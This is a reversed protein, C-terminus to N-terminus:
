GYYVSVLYTGEDKPTITIDIRARCIVGDIEVVIHNGPRALLARTTDDVCGKVAARGEEMTDFVCTYAPYYGDRVGPSIEYGHTNAAYNLGYQVLADLDIVEAPETAPPETAPPATVPPETPKPETPKPETPSPKTPVPETPEPVIPAPETPQPQTPKPETSTPKTPETVVPETVEQKTIDETLVPETIEPESEKTPETLDPTTEEEPTTSENQLVSQMSAQENQPTAANNNECGAVTLVMLLTLLIVFIRKKM